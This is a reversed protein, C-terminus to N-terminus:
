LGKGNELHESITVPLKGEPKIQKLLVKLVAKQMFFDNQYGLLVSSSRMVDVSNMAYPNTFMVSITRRGAIKDIFDKTADNLLLESRPRSRNDHIVLVIQRNDKSDKMLDKLQGETEDGKIFFQDFDTLQLALGKEFDQVQDIGVSVISTSKKPDFRKLGRDSKLLTVAADSIRQVLSQAAPTNLDEYLRNTNVPKVQNLGLWLKAALVKKVRADIDAQSLRGSKIAKEVLDIARGSNASVELLDHGAEIAMVDAEGNPFFKKVGSMDMADTVTLGRFGLETRIIDTVVKKSISSPINPTNDLAPINMHAVMVSPAGDKILQRFPYMELSDLRARDFKLQPLDHHSDVDTDGHGPFHKLSALIGGQVMGDMYAKAKETVKYKNDGFSRFNIVPNKPNNNIDVDPAFNFHMGMRHFDRAVQRGMEYLLNNNQIAGLTMQYPYSITSDPMRMGLGWEGDFTILLPVKSVKQYQNFMNAHRVPGGQFVVLGGLQEKEIVQKVSDVYKQGLNTHARVLFLQGIRQKPTLTNFVSDVWSHKQNIFDVFNPKNQAFAASILMMSLLGFSFLKKIM